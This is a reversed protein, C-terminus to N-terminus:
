CSIAASIPGSRLDGVTHALSAEAIERPFNAQEAAWDCFAARKM